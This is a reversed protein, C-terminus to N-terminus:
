PILTKIVMTINCFVKDTSAELVAPIIVDGATLALSRGLDIAKCPGKYNSGAGGAYSAAAYAKLAFNTATTVGWITAGSQHFLGVAPQNNNDNNRITAYFGVLIGDHPVTFGAATYVRSVSITTDISTASVSTDTSWQNGYANWGNSHPIAWNTAIDSIGLFSTYTYQYRADVHSKLGAATIARTTDTGSDAEATTALEVAGVASATAQALVAAGGITLADTELTGNVDIDGELDIDGPITVVSGAGAGITVDIEGDANTDGDLKLGSTLTGDYEAVRLNLKGAATAEVKDAIQGDIQAMTIVEVGSAADNYGQFHITGCFDDNVGEIITGGGNTRQNRMVISPGVAGEHTSFLDLIPYFQTSNVMRLRDGLIALTDGDTGISEINPQTAALTTSRNSSTVDGTLNGISGVTDAQGTLAGTVDGTITGGVTLHNDFQVRGDDVWLAYANTITQNTSATPAGKIYLSAAATTTVSANTAMLRPNEINIHTYMAATGSASTNTDTINHEDVHIVAGDGPTVDKNVDLIISSLHSLSTDVNLTPIPGTLSTGSLGTGAVISTLDGGGDAAKVIKNNSDLGLHAGSAITGTSIDELYVDSRFRSPLDQIYQGLWKM